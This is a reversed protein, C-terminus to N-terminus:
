EYLFLALVHLIFASSWIYMFFVDGGLIWGYSIRVKQAHQEQKLVFDTNRKYFVIGTSLANHTFLMKLNSMNEILFVSRYYKVVFCKLNM